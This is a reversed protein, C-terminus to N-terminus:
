KKLHSKLIWAAKEHARLRGVLLDATGEDGLEQARTVWDKISNILLEHDKLLEELMEQGSSSSVGESLQTLDLFERLTAPAVEGLIRIREAIEDIAEALEAYQEQFLAHLAHFREDVVNWHCGQLKVYLVFSDALLQGVDRSLELAKLEWESKM